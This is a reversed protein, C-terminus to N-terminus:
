KFVKTIYNEVRGLFSRNNIYRKRNNFEKKAKEIDDYLSDIYEEISGIFKESFDVLSIESADINQKNFDIEITDDSYRSYDSALFIAKSDFVETCLVIKKHEYGTTSDKDSFIISYAKQTEFKM